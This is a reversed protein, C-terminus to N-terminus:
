SARRAERRLHARHENFKGEIGEPDWAAVTRGSERSLTLKIVDRGDRVGALLIVDPWHLPESVRVAFRAALYDQLEGIRQHDGM